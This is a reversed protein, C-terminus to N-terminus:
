PVLAQCKSLNFAKERHLHKRITQESIEILKSLQKPTLEVGAKDNAEKVKEIMSKHRADWIERCSKIKVGRKRLRKSITPISIGTEDSIQNLSMGRSYMEDIEM